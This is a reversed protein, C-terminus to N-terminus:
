QFGSHIINTSGIKSASNTLLAFTPRYPDTTPDEIFFFTTSANFPSEDNYM